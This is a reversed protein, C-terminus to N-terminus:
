ATQVTQSSGPKEVSQRRTALATGIVVFAVAGIGILWGIPDGQNRRLAIRQAEWRSLEVGGLGFTYPPRTVPAVPVTTAPGVAHSRGQFRATQQAIHDPNLSGGPLGVEHPTLPVGEGSRHLVVATQQAIHDPNLSGGPLGVMHPTLPVSNAVSLDGGSGGMQHGSAVPASTVALALAAALM